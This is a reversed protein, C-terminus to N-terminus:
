MLNFLLKMLAPVARLQEKGALAALAKASPIFSLLYNEVSVSLNLFGTDLKLWDFGSSASASVDRYWGM